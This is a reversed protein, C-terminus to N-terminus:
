SEVVEGFAVRSLAVSFTACAAWMVALAVVLYGSVPQVIARWLVGATEVAVRVGATRAMVWEAARSLWAASTSAVLGELVPTFVGVAVVLAAAAAVSAVRWGVPWTMWARSYWPRAARARAALMVRPLLTGPAKPESLQRLAEGVRRELESPEM